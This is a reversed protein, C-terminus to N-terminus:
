GGSYNVKPEAVLEGAVNAAPAKTHSELYRIVADDCRKQVIALQAPTFSEASDFIPSAESTSNADNLMELTTGEVLDNHMPMQFPRRISIESDDLVNSEDFMFTDNQEFRVPCSQSPQSTNNVVAVSSNVPNRPNVPNTVGSM